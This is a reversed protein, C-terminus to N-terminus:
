EENEKPECIELFKEKDPLNDLNFSAKIKVPYYKSKDCAEYPDAETYFRDEQTLPQQNFGEYVYFWLISTKEWLIKIYM